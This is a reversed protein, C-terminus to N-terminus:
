RIRAECPQLCASPMWFLPPPSADFEFSLRSSNEPSRDRKGREEKEEKGGRQRDRQKGKNLHFLFSLATSSPSQLSLSFLTFLCRQQKDKTFLMEPCLSTDPFLFSESEKERGSVRESASRQSNPQSSRSSSSPVPLSLLLKQELTLTARLIGGTEKFDGAM